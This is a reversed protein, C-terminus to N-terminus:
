LSQASSSASRPDEFEVFFGDITFDTSTKSKNSHSFDYIFSIVYGNRAYLKEIREMLEIKADKRIGQQIGSHFYLRISNSHWNNQAYLFSRLFVDSRLIEFNRKRNPPTM